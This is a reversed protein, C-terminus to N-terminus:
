GNRKGSDKRKTKVDIKWKEQEEKRRWRRGESDRGVVREKGGEVVVVVVEKRREM